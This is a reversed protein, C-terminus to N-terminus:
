GPMDPGMSASSTYTWEGVLKKLWLHEKQPEPIEPLEKKPESTSM